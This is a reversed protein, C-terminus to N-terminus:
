QDLTHACQKQHLLPHHVWESETTPALVRLEVLHDLVTKFTQLHVRPVTYPRSRMPKADPLLDIHVKLHPYTGLTGDFM